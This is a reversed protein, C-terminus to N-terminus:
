SWILDVDPPSVDHGECWDPVTVEIILSVAGSKRQKQNGAEAAHADIPAGLDGGVRLVIFYDYVVMSATPLTSSRLHVVAHILHAPVQEIQHVMETDPPCM